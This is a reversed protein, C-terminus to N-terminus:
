NCGTMMRIKTVNDMFYVMWSHANAGHSQFGGVYKQFYLFHLHGTRTGNIAGSIGQTERHYPVWWEIDLCLHDGWAHRRGWRGGPKGHIARRFIMSPLGSCARCFSPSVLCFFVYLLSWTLGLCASTSLFQWCIYSKIINYPNNDDVM